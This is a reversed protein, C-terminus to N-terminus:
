SPYKFPFTLCSMLIFIFVGIEEMKFRLTRDCQEMVASMFETSRDFPYMYTVRRQRTITPSLLTTLCVLTLIFTRIFVEKKFTKIDYLLFIVM